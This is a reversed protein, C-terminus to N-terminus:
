ALGLGCARAGGAPVALYYLPAFRDAAVIAFLRRIEAPRLTYAEYAVLAPLEDKALEAVNKLM